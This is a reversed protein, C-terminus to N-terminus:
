ATSGACSPARWSTLAASQGRGSKGEASKSSRSKNKKQIMFIKVFNESMHSKLFIRHQNKIIM